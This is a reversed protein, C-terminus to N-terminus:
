FGYEGRHWALYRIHNLSVQRLARPQDLELGRRQVSSLRPSVLMQGSDTFSILGADFLADYDARLLFGNYVDLRETDTACDAWPKAHSARLIEPIDCGTVACCGNWFSMLRARYIDQGVRQRILAERETGRISPDADLAASVSDEWEDLPSEPLAVALDFARRLLAGLLELSWAEIHGQPLLIAPITRLLETPVIGNSFELIWSPDHDGPTIIVRAGHRASGLVLRSPAQEYVHEWGNDYGAKEVLVGMFDPM